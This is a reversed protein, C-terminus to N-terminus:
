FPHLHLGRRMLLRVTSLVMPWEYLIQNHSFRVIHFGHSLLWAYRSHDRDFATGGTHPGEGNCEFLLWEGILLDGAFNGPLPAQPVVPIGADEFNCRAVTEGVAQSLGTARDVVSTRKIRSVRSRVRALGAADLLPIGRNPGHRPPELASDLTCIADLAPRCGIIQVLCDEFQVTRRSDQSLQYDAWHLVIGAQEASQAPRFRM